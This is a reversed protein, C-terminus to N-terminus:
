GSLPSGPTICYCASQRQFIWCYAMRSKGTSTFSCTPNPALLFYERRALSGCRSCNVSFNFHSKGWESSDVGCLVLSSLRQDKMSLTGPSRLAIESSLFFDVTHRIEWLASMSQTWERWGGLIWGFCSIQLEDIYGTLDAPLRRVTRVLDDWQVVVSCGMTSSSFACQVHFM